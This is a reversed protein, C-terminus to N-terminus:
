DRQERPRGDFRRKDLHHLLQEWKMRIGRIHTCIQVGALLYSLTCLNIMLGIARGLGARLMSRNSLRSCVESNWDLRLTCAIDGDIIPRSLTFSRTDHPEPLHLCLM